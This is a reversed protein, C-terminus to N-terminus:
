RDKKGPPSPPKSEKRGDRVRNGKCIALGSYKGQPRNGNFDEKLQEKIKRLRYKNKSQKSLAKFCIIAM